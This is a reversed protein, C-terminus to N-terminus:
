EAGNVPPEAGDTTLHEAQTGDVRAYHANDFQFMNRCHM